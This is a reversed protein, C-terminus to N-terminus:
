KTKQLTKKKSTKIFLRQGCSGPVAGKIFIVNKETDMGVVELNQVTVRENGMQSARAGGKFCRGPTSRMGTSGMHRHFGSGHAAPGGAMNHLKIVGQFGRGKSIGTIDVYQDQAFVELTLVQGLSFSELDKEQVRFEGLFRRPSVNAGAFHGRLPKTTRQELRRPDKATVEDFGVQVANYGDTAKTKLQTVVNPEVEIVTCAVINGDKDFRQMMGRKKGMLMRMM